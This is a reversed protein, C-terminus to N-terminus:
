CCKEISIEVVIHRATYGALFISVPTKTSESQCAFIWFTPNAGSVKKNGCQMANAPSPCRFKKEYKVVVGGLRLSDGENIRLIHTLNCLIDLM